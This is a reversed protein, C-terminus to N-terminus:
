SQKGMARAVAERIQEASEATLKEPVEVIFGPRNAGMADALALTAHVQAAACTAAVVEHPIQGRDTIQGLLLEAERYHEPGTM